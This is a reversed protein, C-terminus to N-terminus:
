VSVRQLVRYPKIYLWNAFWISGMCVGGIGFQAVTQRWMPSHSSLAVILINLASHVIVFAILIWGFYFTYRDKSLKVEETKRNVSMGGTALLNKVERSTLLHQQKIDIIKQRIRPNFDKGFRHIFIDEGDISEQDLKKETKSILYMKINTCQHVITERYDRGAVRQKEAKNEQKFTTDDDHKM